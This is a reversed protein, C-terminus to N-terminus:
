RSPLPPPRHIARGGPRVDHEGALGQHGAQYDLLRQLKVAAPAEGPKEAGPARGWLIRVGPAMLILNEDSARYDTLGLRDQHPHLLGATRAAEEVRPDGWPTGAQGSPPRVRGTLVPLRATSAGRPLLVGHGDVVGAAAGRRNGDWTPDVLSVGLVPTRYALHVRVLGPPAVEVRRVEEVWPHSTFVRALRSPLEPDLLDLQDPVGALYQVEALFDARALPGQPECEIAAFAALHRRAERLREGAQRGVYLLGALLLGGALASVVAQAVWKRM